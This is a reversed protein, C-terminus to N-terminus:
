VRAKSVQLALVRNDKFDEERSVCRYIKGWKSIYMRHVYVEPSTLFRPAIGRLPLALLLSSLSQEAGWGGGGRGWTCNASHRRAQLEEEKTKFILPEVTM